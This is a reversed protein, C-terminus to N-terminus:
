GRCLAYVHQQWDEEQIKTMLKGQVAADAMQFGRLLEWLADVVQEALKESVESQYERSNELIKPLRRDIPVNFLRQSNLLAALAGFDVAGGSGADCGGSVDSTGFIRGTTCLGIAAGGWEM